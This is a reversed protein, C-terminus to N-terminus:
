HKQEHAEMFTDQKLDLGSRMGWRWGKKPGERDGKWRYGKESLCVSLGYSHISPHM